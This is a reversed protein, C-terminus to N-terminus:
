QLTSLGLCFNVGDNLSSWPWATLIHKWVIILWKLKAMPNPIIRLASTCNLAMSNSCNSDRDLVISRPLDHLHVIDKYLLVDVSKATYPHSLGIFHIYKSLRDVVIRPLRM